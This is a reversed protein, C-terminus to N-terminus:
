DEEDEDAVAASICSVTSVVATVAAIIVVFIILGVLFYFIFPDMFKGVVQLIRFVVGDEPQGRGNSPNDYCM